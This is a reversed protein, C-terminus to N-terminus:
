HAYATNMTVCESNNSCMCLCFHVTVVTKSVKVDRAPELARFSFASSFNLIVWWPSCLSARYHLSQHNWKSPPAVHPQTQNAQSWLPTLTLSTLGCRSLSSGPRMSICYQLTLCQVEEEDDELSVSAICFTEFSKWTCMQQKSLSLPNFTLKHATAMGRPKLCKCLWGWMLLWAWGARGSEACLLSQRSWFM